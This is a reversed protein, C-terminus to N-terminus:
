APKAFGSILGKKSDIKSIFKKLIKEVKQGILDLISKDQTHEIYEAVAIIFCLSFMPIPYPNNCPACIEILGDSRLSNALLILNHRQYETGEFAYYGCLMQNRSDMGYLCQERWPCDEYHEHM